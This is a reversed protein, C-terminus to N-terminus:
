VRYVRVRTNTMAALGTAPESAPNLIELGNVGRNKAWRGVATHGQNYPLNVVEPYLAKVLRLKVQLRGFPSEVWVQDGDQLQLEAATEPNMELWSGWTEGVTMGSIEQLTPMNANASYSGLSMLTIVNLTLPYEAEDGAYTVEEYHPLYVADGTVSIGLKAREDDSWSGILAHMERSFFDFRGDRPANQRDRGVVHETWTTGGRRAFRYGPTLWIGLERLTDWDTGIVQLRDKLLEEYTNWPFAEAVTGGMQHAVNLLFDGAAMTDYLPPIVPQRLGIGPYGMRELHDDQYRELFTPEPLVLDA